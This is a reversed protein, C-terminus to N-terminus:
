KFHVPQRSRLSAEAQYICELLCWYCYQDIFAIVSYRPPRTVRAVLVMGLGVTRDRIRPISVLYCLLGKLFCLLFLVQSM